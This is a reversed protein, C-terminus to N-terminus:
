YGGFHNNERFTLTDDVWKYLYILYEYLIFASFIASFWNLFSNLGNIKAYLTSICPLVLTGGTFPIPLQLPLCTSSNLTSLLANMVNLPLTLIADVPGSPIISTDSLGNISPLSGDQLFNNLSNDTSINDTSINNYTYTLSANYNDDKMCAYLRIFSPMTVNQITKITFSFKVIETIDDQYTYDYYLSCSQSTSSCILEYDGIIDFNNDNFIVEFDSSSLISSHEYTFDFKGQLPLDLVNSSGEVIFTFDSVSSLSGLVLSKTCYPPEPVSNDNFSDFFTKANITTPPALYIINNVKLPIYYENNSSFFTDRLYYEYTNNLFSTDYYYRDEEITCNEQTPNCSLNNYSYTQSGTGGSYISCSTVNNGNINCLFTQKVLVFTLIKSSNYTGYTNEIINWDSIPTNHLDIWDVYMSSNDSNTDFRLAYYGDNILITNRYIDLMPRNNFYNKINEFLEQNQEVTNLLNQSYKVESYYDSVLAQTERPVIFFLLCFLSILLYKKLTKLYIM